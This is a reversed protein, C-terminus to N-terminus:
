SKKSPIIGETILRAVATAVLSGFAIGFGVQATEIGYQRFQEMNGLLVGQMTYFMSGGPVLPILIPTLIVIAPTRVIRAFIESFWVAFLTALMAGTFFQQASADTYLQIFSTFFAGIIIVPLRKAPLHFIVSFGITGITALLSLWLIEKMRDGGMFCGM